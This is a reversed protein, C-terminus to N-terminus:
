LTAIPTTPSGNLGPLNLPPATLLFAKSSHNKLAFALESLDWLEGLPMGLKFLCHEHLPLMSPEDANNHPYQEVALNDSCLAAINSERLWVHLKPDSGDLELGEVDEARFGSLSFNAKLSEVYGTHLLVVDGDKIEIEEELLVAEFMEWTVPHGIGLYHRALDVLVGRTQIPSIALAGASLPGADLTSTLSASDLGCENPDRPGVSSSEDFGNYFRIEEEGDGDADFRKGVHSLADWHTSFQTHLIMLDDSLIGSKGFGGKELDYLYNAERKRLNPRIIPPFRNVNLANSSPFNLPLSLSISRGNQVSELGRLLSERDILNLTGQTDDFGWRGWNSCDPINVAKPM